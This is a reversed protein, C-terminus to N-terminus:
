VLDKAKVEAEKLILESRTQAERAIEKSIEEAQARAAEHDVADTRRRMMGWVFFLAGGVVFGLIATILAM